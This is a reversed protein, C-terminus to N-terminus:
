DTGRKALPAPCCGQGGKVARLEVLWLDMAGRTVVRDGEFLGDRIEVQGGAKRGPEVVTRLYADGNEVFVFSETVGRILAEEPVTIVPESESLTTFITVFEGPAVADTAALRVIIEKETSSASNAIQAIEGGHSGGSTKIRIRGGAKLDGAQSGPLIGMAHLEGTRSAFVRATWFIEVPLPREEVDALEIGLQERTEPLLTIGVGERHTAGSFSVADDGHGHHEDGHDHHGGEHLGCGVLLCATSISLVINCIEKM